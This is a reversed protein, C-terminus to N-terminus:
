RYLFDGHVACFIVYWSDKSTGGSSRNEAETCPGLCSVHYPAVPLLGRGGRHDGAFKQPNWKLEPYDQREEGM